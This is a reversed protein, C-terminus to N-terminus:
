YTNPGECWDIESKDMKCKASRRDHIHHKGDAADAENQQHNQHVVTEYTAMWNQAILRKKKSMTRANTGRRKADSRVHGLDATLRLVRHARRSRRVASWRQCEPATPLTRWRRRQPWWVQKQKQKWKESRMLRSSSHQAAFPSDTSGALWRGSDARHRCRGTGSIGPNHM